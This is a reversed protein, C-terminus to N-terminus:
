RAPSTSAPCTSRSGSPPRPRSATTSRWDAAPLGRRLDLRRLPLRHLRDGPRLDAGRDRRPRPQLARRGPIRRRPARHPRGHLRARREPDQAPLHRPLQQQGGASPRRLPDELRAEAPQPEGRPDAGRHPDPQGGDRLRLQGQRPDARAPQRLGRPRGLRRRLERGARHGPDAARLAQQRRDRRDAPPLHLRQGRRRHAPVPAPGAERGAPDPHQLPRRARPLRRLRELYRVFSTPPRSTAAATSRSCCSATATALAALELRVAPQGGSGRVRHLGQQQLDPHPPPPLDQLLPRPHGGSRPDPLQPRRALPPPGDAFRRAGRGPDPVRLRRKGRLHRCCAYARGGFSRRTTGPGAGRRRPRWPVFFIM